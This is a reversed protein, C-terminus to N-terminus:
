TPDGDVKPKNNLLLKITKELNSETVKVTELIKRYKDAKSMLEGVPIGTIKSADIKFAEAVMQMYKNFGDPKKAYMTILFGFFRLYAEINKGLESQINTWIEKIKTTDGDSLPIKKNDEDDELSDGLIAKLLINIEAEKRIVGDSLKKLADPKKCLESFKSWDDDITVTANNLFCFSLLKEATDAPSGLAELEKERNKIVQKSKKVLRMVLSGEAKSLLDPCSILSVTKFELDNDSISGEGKLNHLANYAQTTLKNLNIKRLFTLFKNTSSTFGLKFLQDTFAVGLAKINEEAADGWVWAYYMNWLQKRSPYKTGPVATKAKDAFDKLQTIQEAPKNKFKADNFNWTDDVFIKPFKGAADLAEYFALELAKNEALVTPADAAETLIYSPTNEKLIYKM